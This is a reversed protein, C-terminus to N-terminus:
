LMHKNEKNKIRLQRVEELYQLFLKHPEYEKLSLIQQFNGQTQNKRRGMRARHAADSCTLNHFFLWRRVSVWFTVPDWDGSCSGSRKGNHLMPSAGKGATHPQSGRHWEHGLPVLPELCFCIFYIWAAYADDDQAMLWIWASIRQKTACTKTSHSRRSWRLEM